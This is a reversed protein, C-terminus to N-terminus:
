STTRLIVDQLAMGARPYHDGDNHCRCANGAVRAHIISRAEPQKECAVDHHAAADVLDERM